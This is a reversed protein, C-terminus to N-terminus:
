SELEEGHLKLAGIDLVGRLPNNATGSTSYELRSQRLDDTM